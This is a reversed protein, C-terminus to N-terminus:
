RDLTVNSFAKVVGTIAAMCQSRQYPTMRSLSDKVSRLELSLGDAEAFRDPLMESPSVAFADCVSLLRSIGFDAEGREIAGVAKRGIGLEEALDAQALGRESRLKAIKLGIVRHDKSIAAVEAEGRESGNESHSGSDM